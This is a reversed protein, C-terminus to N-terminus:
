TNTSSMQSYTGMEKLYLLQSISSKHIAKHHTQLQENLTVKPLIQQNRRLHLSLSLLNKSSKHKVGMRRRLFRKKNQQQSRYQKKCLRMRFSEMKLLKIQIM